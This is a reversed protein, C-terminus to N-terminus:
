SYKLNSYEKEAAFLSQFIPNNSDIDLTKFLNITQDMSKKIIMMKNSLLRVQKNILTLKKISITKM